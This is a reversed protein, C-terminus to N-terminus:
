WAWPEAAWRYGEGAPIIRGMGPWPLHFGYCRTGKAAAEAWYRKRTVVSQVPNHDFAITWRPDAFMLLDHHALDMLHLLEEGDSQIRFCAHGATHGPAAEITVLGGLLTTGSKLPQLNPELIDFKERVTKIMQPLQQRDRKTLSFDPEPSRWFALEEPLCYLAANPFTPKNGEVFGNLHDSHSHSLFAATIAEPAIGALALGSKLWGMRDNEQGGFGADFIAVEEGKRVVLINAYLPLGAAPDRGETLLAQAMKERDEVPWMLALGQKIPFYADSITWAEATGIKFQYLYPNRPLGLRPSNTEEGQEDSAGKASM